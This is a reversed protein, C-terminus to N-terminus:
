GTSPTRSVARGPALDLAKLWDPATGASRTKRGTKAGAAKAKGPYVRTLKVGKLMLRVHTA